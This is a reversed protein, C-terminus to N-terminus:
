FEEALVWFDFDSLENRNLKDIEDIRAQVERDSPMDLVQRIRAEDLLPYCFDFPAQEGRRAVHIFEAFRKHGVVQFVMAPQTESPAVIDALPFQARVLSRRFENM